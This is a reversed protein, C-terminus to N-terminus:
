IEGLRDIGRNDKALVGGAPSTTSRDAEVSGTLIEARHDGEQEVPKSEEV